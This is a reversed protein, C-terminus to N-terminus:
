PTMTKQPLTPYTMPRQLPSTELNPSPTGTVAPLSPKSTSFLLGHPSSIPSDLGPGLVVTSANSFSTPHTSSRLQQVGTRTPYSSNRNTAERIYPPPPRVEALMLLLISKYVKKLSSEGVEGLLCTQIESSAQAHYTPGLKWPRGTVWATHIDSYCYIALLLSRCDGAQTLMADRVHKWELDVPGFITPPAESGRFHELLEEEYVEGASSRRPSSQEPLIGVNDVGGPGWTMQREDHFLNGDVEAIATSSSAIAGGNTLDLHKQQFDSTIEGIFGLMDFPISFDSSPPGDPSASPLAAHQQPAVQQHRAQENPRAVTRIDSAASGPSAEEPEQTTSSTSRARSSRSHPIGSIIM